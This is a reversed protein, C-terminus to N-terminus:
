EIVSFSLCEIKAKKGEKINGVIKVYKGLQHAEIANDYDYKNLVTSAM